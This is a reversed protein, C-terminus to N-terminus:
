EETRLPVRRPGLGRGRCGQGQGRMRLGQGRGFLRGNIRRTDGCHGLGRGTQPGKGDPGTKDFGPM